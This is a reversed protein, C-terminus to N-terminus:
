TYEIKQTFYSIEVSPLVRYKKLCSKCEIMDVVDVELNLDEPELVEKHCYPCTPYPGDYTFDELDPVDHEKESDVMKQERIISELELDLKYKELIKLSKEIDEETQTFKCFPMKFSWQNSIYVRIFNM